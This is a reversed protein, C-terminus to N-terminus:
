GREVLRGGGDKYTRMALKRSNGCEYDLAHAMSGRYQRVLPWLDTYFEEGHYDKNRGSQIQICHNMEHIITYRLDVKNSGATIGISRGDVTAWGTSQSKKKAPHWAVYPPICGYDDSIRQVLKTVWAPPRVDKYM